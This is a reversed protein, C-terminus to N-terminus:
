RQSLYGAIAQNLYKPLKEEKIHAIEEFKRYSVFTLRIREM